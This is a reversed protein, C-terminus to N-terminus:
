AGWTDQINPPRREYMVGKITLVMSYMYISSAFVHIVARVEAKMARTMPSIVTPVTGSFNHCKKRGQTYQM